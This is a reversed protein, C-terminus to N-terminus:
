WQWMNSKLKALGHLFDECNDIGKLEGNSDCISCKFTNDAYEFMAEESSYGYNGNEMDMYLIYMFKFNGVISEQTYVAFDRLAEQRTYKELTYTGFKIKEM